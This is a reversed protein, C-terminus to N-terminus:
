QALQQSLRERLQRRRCEGFERLAFDVVAHRKLPQMITLLFRELVLLSNGFCPKLLCDRLEARGHWLENLSIIQNHLEPLCRSSLASGGPKFHVGMVSVKHGNHIIFAESHAGCLM